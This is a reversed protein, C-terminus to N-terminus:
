LSYILLEGPIISITWTNQVSEDLGHELFMAKSFDDAQFPVIYANFDEMFGFLGTTGGYMTIEDPTGDEHRHDHKFTLDFGKGTLTFIWTRSTDKGVSLPIRIENENCDKVYIVIKSKRWTEDSDNSETVKGKFKKGCLESLAEFLPNKLEQPETAQVPMSVFSFAVVFGLLLNKM